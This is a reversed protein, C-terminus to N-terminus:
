YVLLIHNTTDMGISLVGIMGSAMTAMVGPLASYKKGGMLNCNVPQLVM